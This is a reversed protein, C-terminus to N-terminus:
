TREGKAALAAEIELKYDDATWREIAVLAVEILKRTDEADQRPRDPDSTAGAIQRALPRHQFAAVFRKAQYLADKCQELVLRANAVLDSKNVAAEEKRKRAEWLREEELEQAMDEM